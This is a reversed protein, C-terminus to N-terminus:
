SHPSKGLISHHNREFLYGCSGIKKFAQLVLCSYPPKM